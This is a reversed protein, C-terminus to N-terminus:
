SELALIARVCSLPLAGGWFFAHLPIASILGPFPSDLKAAQERDAAVFGGKLAPRNEVTSFSSAWYLGAACARFPLFFAPLLPSAM